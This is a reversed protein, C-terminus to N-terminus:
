RNMLKGPIELLKKLLRQTMSPKKVGEIGSEMSALAELYRGSGLQLRSISQLVSARLDDEGLDRLIQAAEWFLKEAEEKRKLAALAAARNGLALAQRKRDGARAFVEVTGEVAEFAAQADGSQLLVVSRNNAMEAANISDGAARYGNEAALFTAGARQLDESEYAQKAERALQQPTQPLNV